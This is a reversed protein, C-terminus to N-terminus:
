RQHWSEEDAPLSVKGFTSRSEIAAHAAGAQAIPFSAGELVRLRGDAIWDLMTAIAERGEGGVNTQFVTVM